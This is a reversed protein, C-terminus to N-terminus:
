REIGAEVRHLALDLLGEDLGVNYLPSVGPRTLVQHLLAISAPHIERGRDDLAECLALLRERRPRVRGDLPRIHTSPPTEKGDAVSVLKRLWAALRHRRAPSAFRTGERRVADISYANRDSLLRIVLERRRLLSRGCLIATGVATAALALAVRADIAIAIVAGVVSLACAVGFDRAQARLADLKLEAERTPPLDRELVSKLEPV